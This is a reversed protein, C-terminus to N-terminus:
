SGEWLHDDRWITDAEILKGAAAFFKGLRMLRAPIPGPGLAGRHKSAADSYLAPSDPKLRFDNLTANLFTPDANIANTGKSVGHGGDAIDTTNNYWVNYDPEGAIDFNVTGGSEIDLGTNNGVFLNSHFEAFDAIYTAGLRVYIGSQATYGYFTNHHIHWNRGTTVRPTRIGRSAGNMFICYRITVGDEDRFDSAGFLCDEFFCREVVDRTDGFGGRKLKVAEEVNRWWIDHVYYADLSGDKTGDGIVLPMGQVGGRTKVGHWYRDGPAESTPNYTYDEGWGKIYYHDGASGLGYLGTAFLFTQKADVWSTGGNSDSGDKADAYWNAM